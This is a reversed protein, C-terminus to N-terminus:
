GWTGSSWSSWPAQRGSKLIFLLFPLSHQRLALQKDERDLHTALASSESELTFDLNRPKRSFQFTSWM